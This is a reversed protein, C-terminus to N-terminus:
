GSIVSEIAKMAVIPNHSSLGIYKIKGKDKLTKAYEIIEGNFVEDFDQQADVYHIMGVDIYDTKLLSLMEEFAEKM